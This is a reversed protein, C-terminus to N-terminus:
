SIFFQTLILSTLLLPFNAHEKPLACKAAGGNELLRDCSGLLERYQSANEYSKKHRQFHPHNIQKENIREVNKEQSM